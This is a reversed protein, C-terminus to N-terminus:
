ICGMKRGEHILNINRELLASSSHHCASYTMFQLEFNLYGLGFDVRAM